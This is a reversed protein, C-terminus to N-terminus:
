QYAVAEWGDVLMEGKVGCKFKLPAELGAISDTKPNDLKEADSINTLHNNYIKATYQADRRLLPRQQGICEIINDSIQVTSFDTKENLGFLGEKRPTATTRTVIHNNRVTLHDFPENM